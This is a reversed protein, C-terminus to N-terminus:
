LCTPVPQVKRFPQYLSLDTRVRVEIVPLTKQNISKLHGSQSPYFAKGRLVGVRSVRAEPLSVTVSNSTVKKPLLLASLSPLDSGLLSSTGMVGDWLQNDLNRRSLPVVATNYVPSILPIGEKKCPSM